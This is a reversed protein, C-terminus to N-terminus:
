NLRNLAESAGPIEQHSMALTGDIDIAFGLEHEDKFM